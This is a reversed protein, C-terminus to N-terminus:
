MYTYWSKCYDKCLQMCCPKVKPILKTKSLGILQNRKWQPPHVNQLTLAQMFAQMFKFAVILGRTAFPFPLSQKHPLPLITRCKSATLPSSIACLRISNCLFAYKRCPGPFGHEMWQSLIWYHVRAVVELAKEPWMSAVKWAMLNRGEGGSKHTFSFLNTTITTCAQWTVFEPFVRQADKEGQSRKCHRPKDDLLVWRHAM